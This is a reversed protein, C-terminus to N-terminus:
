FLLLLSVFFVSTALGSSLMRFFLLSPSLLTTGCAEKDSPKTSDAETSLTVLCCPELVKILLALLETELNTSWTRDTATEVAGNWSRRIILM